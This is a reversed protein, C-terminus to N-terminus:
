RERVTASGQVWDQLRCLSSSEGDRIVALGIEGDKFRGLRFDEEGTTEMGGIAFELDRFEGVTIIFSTAM